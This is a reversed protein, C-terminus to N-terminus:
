EVSIGAARCDTKQIKKWEDYQEVLRAHLMGEAVVGARLCMETKDGRKKVISYEVIADAIVKANTEIELEREQRAVEERSPTCALLAAVIISRMTEIIWGRASTTLLARAPLRVGDPHSLLGGDTGRALADLMSPSKFEAVRAKAPRRTVMVEIRPAAVPFRVWTELKGIERRLRQVIAAIVLAPGGTCSDFTCRRTEPAGTIVRSNFGVGNHIPDSDFRGCGCQM